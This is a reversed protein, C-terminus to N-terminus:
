NRHLAGEQPPKWLGTIAASGRRRPAARQSGQGERGQRPPGGGQRPPRSPPSRGPQCCRCVGARAPTIAQARWRRPQRRRQQPPARRQSRRPRRHVCRPQHRPQHRHEGKTLPPPTTDWKSLENEGGLSPSVFNGLRTFTIIIHALRRRDHRSSQPPSSGRSRKIRCSEGNM